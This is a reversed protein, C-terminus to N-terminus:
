ASLYPPARSQISSFKQLSLVLNNILNEKPIFNLQYNLDHLNNVAIPSDLESNISFDSVIQISDVLSKKYTYKGSQKEYSCALIFLIVVFFLGHM